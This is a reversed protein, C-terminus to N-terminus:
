SNSEFHLQSDQTNYETEGSSIQSLRRSSGFLKRSIQGSKAEAPKGVGVIILKGDELGVLIHSNEKTVSVCHVPVRMHISFSLSLSYLDHIFLHGQRGGTVINEGIVCMDLIQEKLSKSGLYKGNVSYLHLSNKNKLTGKGELSSHIVIHGDWSVALNPITMVLFSDSPPRLTRMYQGRRITHIIVTGDRAGSVAM